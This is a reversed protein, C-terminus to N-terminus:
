QSQKWIQLSRISPSYIHIHIFLKLLNHYLLMLHLNPSFNYPLYSYILSLPLPVKTLLHLKLSLIPFLQCFIKNVVISKELSLNLYMETVSPAYRMSKMHVYHSLHFLELHWLIWINVNVQLPTIFNSKWTVLYSIYCTNSSSVKLHNRNIKTVEWQLRCSILWTPCVWTWWVPEQTFPSWTTLSTPLPAVLNPLHVTLLNHTTPQWRHHILNLTCIDQTRLWRDSLTTIHIDWTWSPM